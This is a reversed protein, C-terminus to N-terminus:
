GGFAYSLTVSTDARRYGYLPINARQRSLSVQGRVSLGKGVAWSLGANWIDLTDHRNTLFAPNSHTYRNDLHDMWTSWDISHTIPGTAYLRAGIINSDGDARCVTASDHGAQVAWGFTEQGFSVSNSLSLVREIFGDVGRYHGEYRYRTVDLALTPWLASAQSWHWSLTGGVGDRVNEKKEWLRDSHAGLSWIGWEGAQDLRAALMQEESSLRHLQDYQRRTDVGTLQMALSPSLLWNAEANVAEGWYSDGRQRSSPGLTFIAGDLAPIAISHEPTSLTANSDHGRSGELTIQWNFRKPATDASDETGLAALSAMQAAERDGLLSWSQALARWSANDDPALTVARELPMLADAPHGSALMAEGLARNFRPESACRAEEARLKDAVEAVNGARWEDAVSKVLADCDFAWADVSCLVTLSALLLASGAIKKVQIDGRCRWRSM